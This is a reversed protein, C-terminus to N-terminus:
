PSSAKQISKLLRRRIMGSFPAVVWWYRRFKRRSPEDTCQVRTETTLRTGGQQLPNLQFVWVAKAYGPDSFEAFGDPKIDVLGGDKTWFKGILGLILHRNPKESLVTFGLSEPSKPGDSIRFGRVALLFRVLSPWALDIDRVHEWVAQPPADINIQHRTRQAYRHRGAPQAAGRGRRVAVLGVASLTLAVAGAGMTRQTGRGEARELEAMVEAAIASASDLAEEALHGRASNYLLDLDSGILGVQTMLSRDRDLAERASLVAESAVLLRDALKAPAELSETANEYLEQLSASPELGVTTLNAEAAEAVQLVVWAQDIRDLVAGFAWDSLASRVYYPPQWGGTTAALEQYAMRAHRREALSEDTVYTEFLSEAGESGGVEQVLDLFRRWDAPGPVTEPPPAGQYAITGTFAAELVNGMGAVGIEDVLEQIVWLSARYGYREYEEITARDMENGLETPIVWDNLPGVLPIPTPARRARIRTEDALGTNHAARTAYEEALGEQIWRETFLSPNFWAHSLEHLVVQPNAWEGVEVLNDSHLYWGGYGALTVDASERIQLATDQLWELGVLRQLEPLGLRVAEVVLNAWEDDDPWPRVVIDFGPVGVQHAALDDDNYGRVHVFFTEPESISTITFVKNGDVVEVRDWDSEELRLDFSAPAVVNVTAQGPSGWAAVGFSIYAPNIRFLTESRPPDGPISYELHLDMSEQYFLQRGLGITALLLGDEDLTELSHELQAGGSTARFGQATTPIRLQFHDYVYRIIHIGDSEDPTMNTLSITAELRLSAEDVDAIYTVDTELELDAHAPAAVFLALLLAALGM